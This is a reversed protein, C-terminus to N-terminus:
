FYPPLRPLSRHWEEKYFISTPAPVLINTYVM